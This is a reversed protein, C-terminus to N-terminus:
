IWTNDGQVSDMLDHMLFYQSVEDFAHIMFLQLFDKVLPLSEDIPLNSDVVVACKRMRRGEDHAKALSVPFCAVWRAGSWIREGKYLDERLGRRPITFLQPKDSAFAKKYIWCDSRRTIKRDAEAEHFGHTFVNSLSSMSAGREAVIALRIRPKAVEKCWEGAGATVEKDFWSHLAKAAVELAKRTNLENALRFSVSSATSTVVAHVNEASVDFDMLNLKPTLPIKLTSGTARTHIMSSGNIVTGLIANMWHKGIEIEESEISLAITGIEPDLVREEDFPWAPLNSVLGGDLFQGRIEVTNTETFRSFTLASAPASHLV